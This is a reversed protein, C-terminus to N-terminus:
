QTRKRAAQRIKAPQVQPVLIRECCRALPGTADVRNNVQQPGNAINAQKVFAVPRPNKMEALTAITMRCQNQAKMAIRSFAELAPWDKAALMKSVMATYIHELTHAQSMLMAEGRSLNGSSAAATHTRLEDVLDNIDHTEKQIFDVLQAAHVEPSLHTRAVGRYTGEDKGLTM